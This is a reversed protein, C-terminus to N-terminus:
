NQAPFVLRDPDFGLARAKAKLSDLVEPALSPTRSLIWLYERTGGSVLAHAYGERELEIVAYAGYFPRFFSVRLQAVDPSGVFEARGQAEKWRCQVPDYGRNVVKLTGEPLSSYEASTHTLGREFRNELRAVEFWKGLYRRADFGQVAEVGEPLTRGGITLNPFRRLLTNM